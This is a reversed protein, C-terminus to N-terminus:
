DGLEIAEPPTSEFMEVSEVVVGGHEEASFHELKASQWSAMGCQVDICKGVDLGWTVTVKQFTYTMSLTRVDANFRFTFVAVLLSPAVVPLFISIPTRSTGGMRAIAICLSPPAGLDPDWRAECVLRHAAREYRQNM